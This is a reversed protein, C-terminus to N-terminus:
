DVQMILVGIQTNLGMVPTAAYTSNEYVKTIAKKSKVLEEKDYTLGEDKKNTSLLVIGTNPDVVLLRKVNATNLYQLFYQNVQFMNESIMESRVALALTSLLQKLHEGELVEIEEDHAIKIETIQEEFTSATSRKEAYGWIVSVILLLVIFLSLFYKKWIPKKNETM